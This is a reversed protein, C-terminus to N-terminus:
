DKFQYPTYPAGAAELQEQLSAFDDIVEVLKEKLPQFEENAISLVMRHTATPESTTNFQEYNLIGIRQNISPVQDIDLTFAMPDGNLAYGLETAANKLAIYQNFLSEYDNETLLIAKEVHRLQTNLESLRQGTAAVQRCTELTQEETEASCPGSVIVPRKKQFLEIPETKM